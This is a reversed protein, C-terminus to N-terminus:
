CRQRPRLLFLLAVKLRNVDFYQIVKMIFTYIKTYMIQGISHESEESIM